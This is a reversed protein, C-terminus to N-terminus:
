SKESKLAGAIRELRSARSAKLLVVDGAKLFDKVAKMAAEVDAFEMVRNLGAARAAQATVPAMKGIVFMQGIGLEAARRGVEAHAAESHAGLENMDGLVAVRRGQLPLDCLTELAALTSDANANYADDLVRVGGAEWFQMRMEAAQCEALGDRVAPRGLGLEESVAAAFLANTVQHRGLLNIRYEGSFEAKPADVRFTVGNKDLRISRARWDNKEGLGVRVVTARTRRIVPETWEGDGNVFLRGDAPLLEALWGEEQAVGALDGFFELHERGINTLVGYKPRIMKVLPALEGPHNTGAELVAAQHSKGLRLLTLPVGIDNNFSAESWVTALKQRLVSAILEKTTTKGNSGGVAIVPLDFERRYAAAFKGLAVRADDVVLVACTPHDLTWRGIDLTAKASGSSVKSKPSQVRSQEIVVAAVGKAAVENLFDHGDFREGKIAFFLDGPKAQRSDIVARQVPTEASGRRLEAACAGAVFKLSRTEM